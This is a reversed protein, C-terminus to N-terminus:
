EKVNDPSTDTTRRLAPLARAAMPHGAEAARALWSHARAALLKGLLYQARVVGAEAAQELYPIAEAAADRSALLEGLTAAAENNGAEAAKSYWHQATDLEGAQDHIYGLLVLIGSNGEARSEM